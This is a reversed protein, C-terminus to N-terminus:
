KGIFVREGRGGIYPPRTCSGLRLQVRGSPRRAPLNLECIPLAFDILPRGSAPEARNLAFFPNMQFLQARFGFYEQGATLPFEALTHTHTHTRQNPPSEPWSALIPLLFDHTNTPRNSSISGFEVVPSELSNPVLPVLLLRKSNERQTTAISPPWPSSSSSSSNPANLCTFAIFHFMIACFCKVAPSSEAPLLWCAIGALCLLLSHFNPYVM